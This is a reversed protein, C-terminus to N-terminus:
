PQNEAFIAPFQDFYVNEFRQSIHPDKWATLGKWTEMEPVIDDIIGVVDQHWNIVVDYLDLSNLRIDINRDKLNVRLAYEDPLAIFHMDKESIMAAVQQATTKQALSAAM